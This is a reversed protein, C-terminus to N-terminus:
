FDRHRPIRGLGKALIGFRLDSPQCPCARNSPLCLCIRLHTNPFNPTSGRSSCFIWITGNKKLQTNYKTKFIKIKKYLESNSFDKLNFLITQYDKM